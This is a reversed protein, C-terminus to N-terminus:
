PFIAAFSLHTIISRVWATIAVRVWAEVSQRADIVHSNDGLRQVHMGIIIIASMYSMHVPLWGLRHDWSVRCVLACLGERSVNKFAVHGYCLFLTLDDNWDYPAHNDLSTTTATRM